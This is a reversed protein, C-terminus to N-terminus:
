TTARNGVKLEALMMGAEGQGGVAESWCLSEAELEWGVGCCGYLSLGVVAGRFFVGCHLAPDFPAGKSTGALGCILRRCVCILTLASLAAGM